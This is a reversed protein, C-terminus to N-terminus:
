RRALFAKGTSLWTAVSGLVSIIEIVRDRGSLFVDALVAAPFLAAIFFVAKTFDSHVIAAIQSRRRLWKSKSGAEKEAWKLINELLDLATKQVTTHPRMTQNVHHDPDLTTVLLTGKGWQQVLMICEENISALCLQENTKLLSGHATRSGPGHFCINRSIRSFIETRDGELTVTIAGVLKDSPEQWNCLWDGEFRIMGLIVLVGGHAMFSEFEHKKARLIFNDTHFPVIIVDYKRLCEHLLDKTPVLHRNPNMMGAFANRHHLGGDIVALRLDRDLKM